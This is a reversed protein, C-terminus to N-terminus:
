LVDTASNVNPPFEIYLYVILILTHKEISPLVNLGVFTEKM